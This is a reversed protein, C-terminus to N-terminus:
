TEPDLVVTGDQDESLVMEAPPESLDAGAQENNRRDYELAAKPGPHAKMAWTGPSSVLLVAFVIAVGM